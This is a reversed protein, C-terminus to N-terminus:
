LLIIWQCCNVTFCNFPFAYSYTCQSAFEMRELTNERQSVLVKDKTCHTQVLQSTTKSFTTWFTLFLPSTACNDMQLFVNKLLFLAGLQLDNDPIPAPRPLSCLSFSLRLSFSCSGLQFSFCEWKLFHKRLLNSYGEAELIKILNIIPTILEMLTATELPVNKLKRKEEKGM